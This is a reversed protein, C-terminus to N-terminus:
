LRPWGLAGLVWFYQPIRDAYENTRLVHTVGELSDVIPCAFDYTPYVKYKTGTRHHPVKSSRALVPDRMCGNDNQMGIKARVCYDDAEGKLLREFIELNQQVTLYRCASDIKKTREERMKEVPTNDLYALNKTIIERLLEFIKDFYDSTYTLKSYKINLTKLDEMISEVYENKEKTPNTDDFRLIM